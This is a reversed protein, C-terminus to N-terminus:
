LIRERQRAETRTLRAAGPTPDVADRNSGRPAATSGRAVFVSLPATVDEPEGREIVSVLAAAALSGLERVDHSMVSLLPTALRCLTSDDWALISLDDPVTLGRAKVADLGAVAMVDNDFIVATPPEPLELLEIVGAAGSAATYDGIATSGTGGVAAIADDFAVTRTQTHLLHQPGSVRGIRRHGLAALEEVARVTTTYNDVRVVAGGAADVPEGLTVHPLGLETLLAARPDDVTIDSIVVGAVSELEAWRRYAALADDITPVTQMLVQVGQPHLVDEMGAIVESYFPDVGESSRLFAMGIARHRRQSESM